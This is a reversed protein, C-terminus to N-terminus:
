WHTFGIRAEALPVSGAAAGITASRRARLLNQWEAM